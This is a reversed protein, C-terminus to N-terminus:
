NTYVDPPECLYPGILASLVGVPSGVGMRDPLTDLRCGKLVILKRADRQM